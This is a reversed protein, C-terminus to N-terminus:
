VFNSKEIQIISNLRWGESKLWKDLGCNILEKAVQSKLENLIQSHKILSNGIKKNYLREAEEFEINIANYDNGNVTISKPYIEVIEEFALSSNTFLKKIFLDTVEYIDPFKSKTNVSIRIFKIDILDDIEQKTIYKSFVSNNHYKLKDFLEYIKDLQTNKTKYHYMKWCFDFQNPSINNTILFENYQKENHYFAM